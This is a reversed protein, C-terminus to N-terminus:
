FGFSAGVQVGGRTPVITMNRMVPVDSWVTMLLTGVGILALGSGLRAGGAYQATVDKETDAYCDYGLYSRELGPKCKEGWNFPILAGATVLALGAWTRGMSREQSPQQTSEEATAVLPVGLVGILVLIGFTRM